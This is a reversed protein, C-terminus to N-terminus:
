PLRATFSVVLWTTGTGEGDIDIRFRDGTQLDDEATNIVAAAAADKSDKENADITLETSLLDASQTLNHIQITVLGTGSVINAAVEVIDWGNMYSPVRDFYAKGDGSTLVTSDNVLVSFTKKGYNSEKLKDPTISKNAAGSNIEATTTLEVVGEASETASPLDDWKVGLGEGSDASLFQGNTGIPIRDDVTDFGYLDGKTTLPSAFGSSDFFELGTEGSNVRVVKLSEGSYSSPTDTLSTFVGGGGALVYWTVGDPIIMKTEGDAITTITAPSDDKITLTFGSGSPNSILFWPNTVAEAPLNVDRDADPTLAQIPESADTLTKNGTLSEINKSLVAGNITVETNGGSDAAVVSAGIFDLNVQQALPTGEDLIVHGDGTGAPVTFNAGDWFQGPTANELLDFLADIELYRTNWLESDADPKNPIDPIPTIPDFAM